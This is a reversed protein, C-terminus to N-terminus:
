KQRTLSYGIGGLEAWVFVELVLGRGKSFISVRADENSWTEHVFFEEHGTPLAQSIKLEGFLAVEMNNGFKLRERRVLDSLIESIERCRSESLNYLLNKRGQTTWERQSPVLFLNNRSIFNRFTNSRNEHLVMGEFRDGSLSLDVRFPTSIVSEPNWPAGTTRATEEGYIVATKEGPGADVRRITLIIETVYRSIGTRAAKWPDLDSPISASEFTYTGVEPLIRNEPKSLELPTSLPPEFQLGSDKAKAVIGYRIASGGLFRNLQAMPVEPTYSSHHNKQHPNGGIVSPSWLMLRDMDSNLEITGIPTNSDVPLEVVAVSDRETVLEGWKVSKNQAIIQVRLNRGDSTVELPIAFYTTPGYGYTGGSEDVYFRVGRQELHASSNCASLLAAL